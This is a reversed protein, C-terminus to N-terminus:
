GKKIITRFKSEQKTFTAKLEKGSHMVTITVPEGIKIADFAKEFEAVTTVPKDQLKTIIDGKEIAADGLVDKAEPLMGAVVMDKGKTGIFIGAGSLPTIDAVGDDFQISHSDGSTEVNPGGKDDTVVMRRKPLTAPDAKKITSIMM